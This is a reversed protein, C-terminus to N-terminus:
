DNDFERKEWDFIKLVVKQVEEGKKNKYSGDDTVVRHSVFEEGNKNERITASLDLVDGKELLSAEVAKEGWVQCDWFTKGTTVWKKDKDKYGYNEVISFTCLPTDNQGVNRFEVDSCIKAYPNSYAGM